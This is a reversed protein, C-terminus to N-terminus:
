HGVSAATQMGPHTMAPGSLALDQKPVQAVEAIASFLQKTYMRKKVLANVMMALSQLRCAADDM